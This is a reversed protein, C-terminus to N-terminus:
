AFVTEKSHLHPELTFEKAMTTHAHGTTHSETVEHVPAQWAVRDMFNELCSYQLPYDNGEGPSRELGRISGRTEQGKTLNKVM